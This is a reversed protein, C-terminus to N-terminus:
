KKIQKRAGFDTQLTTKLTETFYETPKPPQTSVKQKLILENIVCEPPMIKPLYCGVQVNEQASEM